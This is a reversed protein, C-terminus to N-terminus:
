PRISYYARLFVETSTPFHRYALIRISLELCVRAFAEIAVSAVQRCCCCSNMLRNSSCWRRQYKASSDLRMPQPPSLWIRACVPTEKSVIRRPRCSSSAPKVSQRSPRTRRFPPPRLRISSQSESISFSKAAKASGSVPPSGQLSILHTRELRVCNAESNFAKPWRTPRSVTRRNSFFRAMYQAAAEFAKGSRRMGVPVALELVDFGLLVGAQFRSHGDDADIGLLLFQNAIKGIVALCPATVCEFDVRMIKSLVGQTSGHRVSNIFEIPLAPMNAYSSRGVCGTECYIHNCLPPPLISAASKGAFAMKQNESVSATAVTAPCVSPFLLQLLFYGVSKSQFNCNTMVWYACGLPVGNLMTQKTGDAGIPSALGQTGKFGHEAENASCFSNLRCRCQAGSGIRKTFLDGSLLHLRQFDTRM